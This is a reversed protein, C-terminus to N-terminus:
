SRWIRDLLDAVHGATMHRNVEIHPWGSYSKFGEILVVDTKLLTLLESPDDFSLRTISAGHMIAASDGALIVPDAGAAAFRATDGRQEDNLPHHTHKIAAVSLGRAVYRRILETVITTKGSNSPGTFAAVRSM